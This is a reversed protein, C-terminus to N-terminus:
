SLKAQPGLISVVQVELAVDQGAWPHNTDVVVVDGQVEMIRVPRPRGKRDTVRVWSNLALGDEKPFRSRALRHVREPKHLGYAKAAPVLVQLREGEGLGVLSLGLGPLRRNETGVTVELPERGRSSAKGGDQSRKVFHVQVRDCAQITRM